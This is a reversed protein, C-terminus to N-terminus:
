GEKPELYLIAFYGTAMNPGNGQNSCFFLEIQKFRHMGDIGELGKINRSWEYYWSFLVWICECGRKRRVARVRPM